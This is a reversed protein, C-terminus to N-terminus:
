YYLTQATHDIEIFMSQTMSWMVSWTTLVTMGMPHQQAVNNPEPLILAWCTLMDLHQSIACNQGNTTFNNAVHQWCTTSNNVDLGNTTNGVHQVVINTYHLKPTLLSYHYWNCVFYQLLQVPEAVSTELLVPCHRCRVTALLSRAINDVLTLSHLVLESSCAFWHGGCCPWRTRV